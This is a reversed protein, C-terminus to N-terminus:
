SGGIEPPRPRDAAEPLHSLTQEAEVIERRYIGHRDLRRVRRWAAQAAVQDGRATLVQAVCYALPLDDNAQDLVPQLQEWADDIRGSRLAQRAGRLATERRAEVAGQRQQRVTQAFRLQAGLYTGLAVGIALGRWSPALDDPFLLSAALAISAAGTFLLAIAVGSAEAGMLVLGGGPVVLNALRSVLVTTKDSM